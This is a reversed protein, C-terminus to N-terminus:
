REILGNIKYGRADQYQSQLQSYAELSDPDSLELLRAMESEWLDYPAILNRIVVLTSQGEAPVDGPFYRTSLTNTIEGSVPELEGDLLKLFTTKGRGNRGVLGSRWTSDLILSLDSFIESYPSTYNFEVRTFIITSM